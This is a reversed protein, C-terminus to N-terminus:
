PPKVIDKNSTVKDITQTLLIPPSLAPPQRCATADCYGAPAAPLATGGTIAARQERVHSTNGVVLIQQLGEDKRHAASAALEPVPDGLLSSSTFIATAGDDRRRDSPRM